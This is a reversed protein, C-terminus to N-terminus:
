QHAPFWVKMPELEEEKCIRKIRNHSHKYTKEVEVTYVTENGNQFADVVVGIEGSSLIKVSSYLPVM